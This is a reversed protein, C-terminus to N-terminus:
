PHRIGVGPAFAGRRREQLVDSSPLVEAARDLDGSKELAFMLDRVDDLSERARIEDLSVALSQSRNNDLVLEAVAETLEELLTNRREGTLTGAQVAPAMLIKLNVEHDSMDVGGSNDLADTNIRGGLLAYEVRARQTLGLNGGEGVVDCRLENVDVRVADNSPDGADSHSESASKVYTGIGGNWLLEVPACLVARILAEGYLLDIPCEVFM